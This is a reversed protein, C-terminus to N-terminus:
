KVSFQQQFFFPCNSGDSTYITGTVWGTVTTGDNTPNFLMTSAVAALETGPSPQNGGAVMSTGSCYITSADGSLITASIGSITDEPNTPSAQYWMQLTGSNDYGVTWFQIVVLDNCFTSDMAERLGERNLVGLQKALDPINM